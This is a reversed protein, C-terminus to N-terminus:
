AAVAGLLTADVRWQPRAIQALVDARSDTRDRRQDEDHLHEGRSRRPVIPDRLTAEEL